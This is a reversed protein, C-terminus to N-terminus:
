PVVRQIALRLLHEVYHYVLLAGCQVSCLFTSLCHSARTSGTPLACPTNLQSVLLLARKLILLASHLPQERLDIPFVFHFHCNTSFYMTQSLGECDSPEEYVDEMQVYGSRRMNSRICEIVLGTAHAAKLFQCKDSKGKLTTTFM